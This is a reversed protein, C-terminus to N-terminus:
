DGDLLTGDLLATLDSKLAIEIDAFAEDAKLSHESGRAAANMLAQNRAALILLHLRRAVIFLEGRTAATGVWDASPKPLGPESM